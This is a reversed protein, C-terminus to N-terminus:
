ALPLAAISGSGATVRTWALATARAAISPNEVIGRIDIKQTEVQPISMDRSGALLVDLPEVDGATVVPRAEDIRCGCRNM